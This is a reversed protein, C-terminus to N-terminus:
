TASRGSHSMIMPKSKKSMALAPTRGWLRVKSTLSISLSLESRVEM